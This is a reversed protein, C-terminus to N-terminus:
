IKYVTQEGVESLQVNYWKIFDIVREYILKISTYIPLEAVRNFEISRELTTGMFMKNPNHQMTKIQRVVPMLLNWDSNYPTQYIFEREYWLETIHTDDFGYKWVEKDGVWLQKYKCGMFLSITKLQEIIEQEEGM